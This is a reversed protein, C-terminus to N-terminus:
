KYIFFKKKVLYIVGVTVATVVVTAAISIFIENNFIPSVANYSHNITKFPTYHLIMLGLSNQGLYGLVLGFRQVAYSIMLVGVAGILAALIFLWYKNTYFLHCNTRIKCFIVLVSVGSILVIGGILSTIKGVKYILKTRAFIYGLIYSPLSIFLRGFAIFVFYGVMTMTNTSLNLETKLTLMVFGILVSLVAFLVLAINQKIESHKKILKSIAFFCIECMALTALFWLPALGRLTLTAIYRTPSMLKDALIIYLMSWVLYPVILRFFVKKLEQSFKTHAFNNKM